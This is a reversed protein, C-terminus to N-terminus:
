SAVQLRNEFTLDPIKASYCLNKDGSEFFL